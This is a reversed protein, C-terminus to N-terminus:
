AERELLVVTSGVHADTAPIRRRGARRLGAKRGEDELRDASLVRLTTEEVEESLEGGPSVVQRLRRVLIQTGDIGTELPLSSYVWGDLECADPLPPIWADGPAGAPLGEVIAAAFLGGPRLHRAVCHLCRERQDEDALLQMLQMPAAVFDFRESLAFETADAARAVVPLDGARRTLEEVLGADRDLANVRHGAGALSLAVRGTGCGLDLVAEGRAAALEAWTDLDATYAGCELDHWVVSADRLAIM